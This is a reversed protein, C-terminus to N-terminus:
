GKNLKEAVSIIRKLLTKQGKYVEDFSVDSELKNRFWTKQRKAYQRSHLKAAAVAEEVSMKGNLAAMLEPVGLVKMAPLDKDLNKSALAEVEELAGQKMMEDFRLYCRKDIEETEPLLRVALFSAAIKKEKPKVQWVSIPTGTNLYVEWARRVRTTDNPKLVAYSVADFDKLESHLDVVGREELMVAVRRRIDPATEPIANLGNILADIYFGTGGAVIPVKGSEFARKIEVAALALWEFVSGQKAVPFVQYLYHPVKACDEASPCASLIPLDQYVQMADANIVVGDLALALDMALRSKGSATPGAIVIVLNGGM